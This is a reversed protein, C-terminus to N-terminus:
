APGTIFPLYPKGEGKPNLSAKIRVDKEKILDIMEGRSEPAIVEVTPSFIDQEHVQRVVGIRQDSLSVLTGVPWAGTFQFFKDLLQPDFNKGKDLMMVEYIKDPPYDKKYSRKLALADYVDCIAIMMSAPHPRRPFASKPYGTLDYRLHHEYAVIMPLIGLSDKYGELIKAGLLPHNRVQSFEKESLASKKQIIKKSIYLKGVDHYLAAIGLDLVDDKAFDLKSAFFMALLSVNLLHVFTVLDRRKVSILNLLEQHRGVFDEMIGLINFRLDLYDIEEEDLVLNVSHSVAQVSSEFRTALLAAEAEIGEAKVLARVRGARINQIGHLNFYEQESVNSLKKTRTLFIIFQRLEEFRLGQQFVIREVDNKGLFDMLPALKGRLNFFIEDEWAPEDGIIGLILEKRNELIEQIGAYLKELYETFKPHEGAYIKGAQIANMLYIFCLKAKDRV